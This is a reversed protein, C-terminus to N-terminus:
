MLGTQGSRLAAAIPLHEGSVCDCHSPHFQHTWFLDVSQNKAAALPTLQQGPVHSLSPPARSDDLSAPDAPGTGVDGAHRALILDPACFDRMQRVVRTLESCYCTGDLGVHGRHTLALTVHDVALDLQM